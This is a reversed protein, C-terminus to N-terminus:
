YAADLEWLFPIAPVGAQNYLNVLYWDTQAFCVRVAGEIKEEPYLFLKEGEIEYRFESEQGNVWLRMASLSEGDVYLGGAANAFTIKVCAEDAEASVARPADCVIEERYVHGRALMALRRGVTQKDKPHIDLREGVDSISCLYAQPVNDAVLQQCRRITVFDLNSFDLWREWGPLQVILFPLEEQWLARWDGILATLMDQYLGQRGPVDDSEGQYWIVGRVAYPALPKVMHEYLSAPFSQPQPQLSPDDAAQSGLGAEVEEMTVTKSLVLKTFPDDMPNSRDNAPHRRQKEWYTEMDKQVLMAEYDTYWEKGFRRVSDMSMWVSSATGGWNCGVIGVPVHLSDELMEAFYYGVASFWDIEEPTAKRWVAMNGYDFEELQGAYCVEPADYFRINPRPLRERTKAAHKEYRFYFEMNSQGGALWVEGVAIDELTRSEQRTTITMTEQFSAELAPLETKWNGYLDASTEARRGQVTVVVKELADATGWVAITKDRQLVMGNQFITALQLM